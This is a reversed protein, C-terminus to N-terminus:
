KATVQIDRAGNLTGKNGASDYAIAALNHRGRAVNALSVSAAWGARLWDQRGITNAVDVRDGGLTAQAVVNNDLLVEVKKVPAGDETDAAWGVVTISGGTKLEGNVEDVFGEPPNALANPNTGAPAANTNASKNSQAGTNTNQPPPPTTCGSLFMGLILPLVLTRLRNLHSNMKKEKISIATPKYGVREQGRKFLSHLDYSLM